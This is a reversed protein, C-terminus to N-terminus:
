EGRKVSRAGLAANGGVAWRYVAQRAPDNSVPHALRLLDRHSWGDRRQYKGVQHALDDASRGEYWSAVAKRLGRGWGRLGDVAAAFQFLHTGIRCVKPLAEAAKATHGAAAVIALAFVAPDNKPARGQDSVDVIARVTRDVDLDVCRAVCEANEITLKRETAYYTGGESGLILFRDLRTWDDVAFAYGGASNPVMAKGPIPESQPTIKKSFLKAYISM